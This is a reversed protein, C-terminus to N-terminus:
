PAPAEQGRGTAELYAIRSLELCASCIGVGPGLEEVPFSWRCPGDPMLCALQDTCGCANCRM